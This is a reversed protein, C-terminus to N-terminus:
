LNEHAKSQGPSARSVIWNMLRHQEYNPMFIQFSGVRNKLYNAYNQSNPQKLLWKRCIRKLFTYQQENLSASGQETIPMLKRGYMGWPRGTKIDKPTYGDKTQYMALYFGSAKINKVEQVDTGHHRFSKSKTGVIRYWSNKILQRLEKVHPISPNYMLLHFHPAGRKQFELKWLFGM